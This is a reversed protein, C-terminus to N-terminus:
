RAPRRAARARAFALFAAEPSTLRPRGSAAWMRVWEAELWYPDYGPAVGRVREHIDSALRPGEGAVAGGLRGRARVRVVDSEDLALRYDPLGDEAAMDRIMKRFVVFM